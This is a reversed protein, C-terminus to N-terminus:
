RRVVILTVGAIVLLTGLMSICDAKSPDFYERLVRGLYISAFFVGVNATQVIALAMGPNPASAVARFVLINAAAGFTLGVLVIAGVVSAQPVFSSGNSVGTVTTAVIVGVFYWVLFIDTSVGYNRKFFGIALWTPVLCLAAISAQALWHSPIPM